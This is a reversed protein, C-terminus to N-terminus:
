PEIAASPSQATKRSTVLRAPQGEYVLDHCHIEVEFVDGKENRHRWHEPAGHSEHTHLADRVVAIVEESPRIDLISMRLFQNRTYGYVKVAAKNVALFALTQQHFVWMPLPSTEFDLGCLEAAIKSLTAQDARLM